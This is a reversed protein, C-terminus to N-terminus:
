CWIWFMELRDPLFLFINLTFYKKKQQCKKPLSIAKINAYCSVELYTYNPRFAPQLKKEIKKNQFNHDLCLFSANNLLAGLPKFNKWTTSISYTLNPLISNFSHSLIYAYWCFYVDNKHSNRLYPFILCFVQTVCYLFPHIKFGAISIAM